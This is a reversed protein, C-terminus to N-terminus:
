TFAPNSFSLLMVDTSGYYYCYVNIYFQSICIYIDQYVSETKTLERHMKM